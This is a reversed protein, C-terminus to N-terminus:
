EEKNRAAAAMATGILGIIGFVLEIVESPKM